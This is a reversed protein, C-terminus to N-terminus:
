AIRVMGLFALNYIVSHESNRVDVTNLLIMVSAMVSNHLGGVVNCHHAFGQLRQRLGLDGGVSGVL